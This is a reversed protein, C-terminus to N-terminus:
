AGTAASSSRRCRSRGAPSTCSSTCGALDVLVGRPQGAEGEDCGSCSGLRRLAGQLQHVLQLFPQLLDAAEGADAQLRGGARVALEGADQDDAGVVAVAAVRLRVLISIGSEAWPVLGAEVASPPSCTTSSGDSAARCRRGPPAALAAQSSVTAPSISVLGLVSPSNSSCMAALDDLQHVRGAAQHVAVAGVHVGQQADHWGPRGRSRRAHVVVQVLGERVGCPPPPGPEPGTPTRAAGPRSGARGSRAVDLSAAVVLVPRREVLQDHRRLVMPRTCANWPLKPM